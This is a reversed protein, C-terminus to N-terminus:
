IDRSNQRSPSVDESTSGYLDNEETARRSTFIVAYYPPKPTM